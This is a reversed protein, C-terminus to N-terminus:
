TMVFRLGQFNQPHVNTTKIEQNVILEISIFFYFNIKKM